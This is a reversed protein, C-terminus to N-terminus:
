AFVDHGGPVLQFAFTRIAILTFCPLRLLLQRGYDMRRECEASPKVNPGEESKRLHAWDNAGMLCARTKSVKREVTLVIALASM